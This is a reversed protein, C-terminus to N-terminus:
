WNIDEVNKLQKILIVCINIFPLHSEDFVLSSHAKLWFFDYKQRLFGKGALPLAKM